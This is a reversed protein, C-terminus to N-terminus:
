QGQHAFRLGPRPVFRKGLSTAHLALPNSRKTKPDFHPNAINCGPADDWCPLLLFAHTDGDPFSGFGSIEGRENIFVAENLTFDSDPPVFTNLDLIRGRQWLVAHEVLDTCAPFSDAISLGSGGVILGEENVADAVSCADGVLTGLSKMTGNEWHFGVLAQGAPPISQPTSSGVVEGVNNLWAAYGYTGGLTHLDTMTGHEWLFPHSETDGLLNSQGVVQGRDNIAYADTCSGGLTLLDAMQNNEWLFAHSTLPFDAFCGQVPPPGSNPTYSQGVIQGRENIYLAEADGGGLTGLDQMAGGQWLFARTQTNFQPSDSDYTSNSAFGVVQGSDNVATALSEYGGELALTRLDVIQDDQWLVAHLVPAELYPDIEGNESFGVILGSRSIWSSAASLGPRGPLASLPTRFGDKWRFARDVYCNWFCPVYPDPNATDAWGAFTGDAALARPTFTYAVYWYPLYSNPGGLTGLDVLRYQPNPDAALARSFVVLAILTISVLGTGTKVIPKKM